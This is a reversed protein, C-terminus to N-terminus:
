RSCGWSTPRASAIRPPECSGTTSTVSERSTSCRTSWTSSCAPARWRGKRPSTGSWCCPPAAARRWTSCRSGANAFRPSAARAVRSTRAPWPRSRTRWWWTPPSIPRRPSCESSTPRASCWSRPHSRASGTPGCGCKNKARRARWTSCAGAPPPSRWRWRCFWRARASAPIAVSSCCGKRNSFCGSLAGSVLAAGLWLRGILRRM